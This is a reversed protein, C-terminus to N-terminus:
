GEIRKLSKSKSGNKTAWRFTGKLIAEIIDYRINLEQLTYKLRLQFFDICNKFLADVDKIPIGNDEVIKIAEKLLEIVSM